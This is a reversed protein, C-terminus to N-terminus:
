NMVESKRIEISIEDNFRMMHRYGPAREIECFGEEIRDNRLEAALQYALEIHMGADRYSVHDDYLDICVVAFRM